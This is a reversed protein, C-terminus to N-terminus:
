KWSSATTWGPRLLGGERTFLSTRWRWLPVERYAGAHEGKQGAGAPTEEVAKKDKRQLEQKMKVGRLLESFYIQYIDGLKICNVDKDKTHRTRM